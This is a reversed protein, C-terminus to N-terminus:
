VKQFLFCAQISTVVSMGWYIPLIGQTHLALIYSYPLIIIINKIKIVKKIKEIYFPSHMGFIYTLDLIEFRSVQQRWVYYAYRGQYYM